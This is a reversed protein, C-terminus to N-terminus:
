SGYADRRRHAAKSKLRHALPAPREWGFGTDFAAVLDHVTVHFENFVRVCRDRGRRTRGGTELPTTKLAAAEVAGLAVMVKLSM